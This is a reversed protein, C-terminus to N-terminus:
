GEVEREERPTPLTESPLAAIKAEEELVEAAIRPAHPANLAAIVAAHIQDPTMEGDSAEAREVREKVSDGLAAYSLAQVKEAAAALDALFRASVHPVGNKDLSSLKSVIEEPTLGDFARLMADVTLRLRHAQVFNLARNQAREYDGPKGSKSMVSIRRVKEIWGEQEALAAVVKPEMDLANATKEVDGVLSMYCLFIQSVDLKSKDVKM